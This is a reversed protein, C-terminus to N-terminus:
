PGASRAADRGACRRGHRLPRVGAVRQQARSPRVSSAGARRRARRCRSAAAGPAAAARAARVELDDVDAAVDVGPEPADAAIVGLAVEVGHHEGGGPEVPQAPEVRDGLEEATSAPRGRRRLAREGDLSRSGAGRLETTSRATSWLGDRSVASRRARPAPWARPRISPVSRPARPARRRAATGSRAPRRSSPVRVSVLECASTDRPNSRGLAARAHRVFQPSRRPRRAARRAACGLERGDPPVAHRWAVGRLRQGAPAHQHGAAALPAVPDRRAQAAVPRHRHDRRQDVEGRRLGWRARWRAARARAVPLEVPEDDGARGGDVHQDALPVRTGSACGCRRPRRSWPPPAAAQGAVPDVEHRAGVVRRAPQHLLPRGAVDAPATSIGCDSM